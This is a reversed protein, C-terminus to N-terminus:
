CGRHPMRCLSLPLTPVHMGRKAPATDLRPSFHSLSMRRNDWCRRTFDHIEYCFVNGIASILDSRWTCGAIHIGISLPIPRSEPGWGSPGSIRGLIFEPAVRELDDLGWSSAALDRRDM